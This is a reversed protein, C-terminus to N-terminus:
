PAESKQEARAKVHELRRDWGRAVLGLLESIESIRSPAVSHVRRHSRSAAEVIGANELIRMQKAVAQRSLDLDRAVAGASDPSRALRVLIRRRTRDALATFVRDAEESLLSDAHDQRSDDISRM